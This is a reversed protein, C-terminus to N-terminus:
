FARDIGIVWRMQVFDKDTAPPRNLFFPIDLRITFPRIMELPGWNRLTYTVGIGADARVESFAERINNRNLNESSIVGIDAFLYSAFGQNQLVQPLYSSFDIETTFSAGSTGYNSSSLTGDKKEEPALYGAYGRLNLGGSTHFNGLTYDFGTM